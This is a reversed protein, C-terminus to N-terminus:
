GKRTAVDEPHTNNSAKIKRNGALNYVFNAQHCRLHFAPSSESFIVPILLLLNM